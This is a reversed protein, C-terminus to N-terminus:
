YWCHAVDFYLNFVVHELFVMRGGSKLAREANALVTEASDVSCLVHTMVVVDYSGNSADDVDEGKMGVFELPFELGRREKEEEMRQEFYSNPEVAM